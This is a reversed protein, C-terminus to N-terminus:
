AVRTREASRLYRDLEAQAIFTMSRVKIIRIKGEAILRYVTRRSCRLYAASEDITLRM